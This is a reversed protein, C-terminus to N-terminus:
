KFYQNLLYSNYCFPKIKTSYNNKIKLYLHGNKNKCNDIPYIVEYDILYYKNKYKIINKSIPDLLIYGTNKINKKYLKFLDPLDCIDKNSLDGGYTIYGRCIKDKDFILAYLPSILDNDFINNNMANTFSKNHIYEKEWVKYYM